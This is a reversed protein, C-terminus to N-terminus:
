SVVTVSYWCQPCLMIMGSYWCQPCLMIMGCWQVLVTPMAHDHYWQVLVTPMARDHYKQVLVTPMAHAHYCQANIGGHGVMVFNHYERTLHDYARHYEVASYQPHLTILGTFTVYHLSFCHSLVM